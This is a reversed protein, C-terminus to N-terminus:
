RFSRRVMRLEINLMTVIIKWLSRTNVQQRAKRQGTATKDVGMLFDNLAKKRKDFVNSKYSNTNNSAEKVGSINM